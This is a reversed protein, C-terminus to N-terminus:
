PADRQGRILADVYEAQEDLYRRLDSSTPASAARDRWFQGLARDIPERDTARAELGRIFELYTVIAASEERTFVSLRYRAYDLFTTAGYRRPNIFQRRGSIRTFTRDGITHDFTTETFGHVLHFVPDATKLADRVDAVLYAPLYFRFGGESFFSLATYHVDLFEPSLPRWDALGYFASVEQLPEEGDHSGLLFPDGPHPTAAFAQEIIGIVESAKV